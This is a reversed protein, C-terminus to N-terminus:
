TPEPPRLVRRLFAAVEADGRAAEADEAGRRRGRKAVAIASSPADRPAPKPKPSRKPPRAMVINPHKTRM